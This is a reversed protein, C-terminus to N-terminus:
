EKTGFIVSVYFGADIRRVPVWTMTLNRRVEREMDQLEGPTMVDLIHLLPKNPFPVLTPEGSPSSVRVRANRVMRIYM